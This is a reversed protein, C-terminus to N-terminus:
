GLVIRFTSGEGPRSDVSVQGQHLTAVLKVFTLGLGVGGKVRSRSRDARFFPEFLHPLDAPDIGPGRDRVTVDGGQEVCLRIESGVPAYKGANDLLNLLARRLLTRDVERLVPAPALDVVLPSAPVRDRFDSAVEEVLQRLDVSLRRLPWVERARPSALDLRLTETINELLSELERLDRALEGVYRTAEAPNSETLELLVAMRAMPTRLEHSVNALLERERVRLQAIREAMLNFAAATRSVEDSGSVEVRQGLDGEGFRRAATALAGLRGTMAATVPFSLLVVAIMTAVLPIAFRVLSTSREAPRMVVQADSIVFREPRTRAPRPLMLLEPPLAMPPPPGDFRGTDQRSVAHALPPGGPPAIPPRVNTALLAGDREYVSIETGDALAEDLLRQRTAGDETALREVFSPSVVAPHGPSGGQRTIWFTAISVGTIIALVATGYAIIRLRM